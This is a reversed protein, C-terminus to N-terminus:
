LSGCLTSQYRPGLCPKRFWSKSLWAEPRRGALYPGAGCGSVIPYVNFSYVCQFSVSVFCSWVTTFSNQIYKMEIHPCHATLKTYNDKTLKINMRKLSVRIYDRLSGANCNQLNRSALMLFLRHCVLTKKSSPFSHSLILCFLVFVYTSHPIASNGRSSREIQMKLGTLSHTDLVSRFRM